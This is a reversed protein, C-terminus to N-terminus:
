YLEIERINVLDDPGAAKPTLYIRIADADKILDPLDIITTRTGQNGNTQVFTGEDYPDQEVVTVEEGDKIATIRCDTIRNVSNWVMQVIVVTDIDEGEALPIEIFNTETHNLAYEWRTDLNGDVAMAGIRDENAYNGVRVEKNLAINVRDEIGEQIEDGYVSFEFFSFGYKVGDSAPGREVGQFKVYRAAQKEALEIIKTGGHGDQEDYVEDWKEGDTSILVKYKRSTDAEFDIAIERIDKVEGLDVQWWADDRYNSSWRTDLEGDNGKEALFDATEQGSASVPQNLALNKYVIRGALDAIEEDELVRDFIMLQDLTGKVSHADDGIMEMPLMLTEYYRQTRVGNENTPYSGNWSDCGSNVNWNPFPKNILADIKEGDVYLTVGEYTGTLALHFWENEPFEYDFAHTYDEVDYKLRGHQFYLTGSEGKTLIQKEDDHEDLKMWSAFTWDFGPSKIDTKLTSNNGSMAIATPAGDKGEQHLKVGDGAVRVEASNEANGNLKLLEDDVVPQDVEYLFDANPADGLQAALEKIDSYRKGEENAQTGAWTKEAVAYLNHQIRYSIDNVSIGNGHFDNWVAFQGGKVGPHGDPAPNGAWGRNNNPLWSNYLYEAQGFQQSYYGGGPVIYVELDEMSIIDYGADLSAKANAYGQYWAFMLADTTVPTTGSNESLSGWFVAKKGTSNVYELLDNCYQRFGERYATREESPLGNTKYEDTGINVYEGIFTPEEGNVGNIYESFLAKTMELVEPNLVDLYKQNDRRAYEMGWARTYALAHGPTDMEPIVDIGM